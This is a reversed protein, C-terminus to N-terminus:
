KQFQVKLAFLDFQQALGMEGTVERGQSQFKAYIRDTIIEADDNVYTINIWFPPRALLDGATAKEFKVVAAMYMTISANPTRKGKSWSTAENSMSFNLQHEQEVGYKIEKIEDVIIGDFAIQVDGSDYAKGGKIIDAM